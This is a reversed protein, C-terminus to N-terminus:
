LVGRSVRTERDSIGQAMMPIMNGPATPPAGPGTPLRPAWCNPLSGYCSWRNGAGGSFGELALIVTSVSGGHITVTESLPLYGLALVSLQVTGVPLVLTFSGVVNTSVSGARGDEIYSVMGNPIGKGSTSSIVEGAIEGTDSVNGRSSPVLRFVGMYLNKGDVTISRNEPEYGPAAASLQSTGNPLRTGFYGLANTGVSDEAGNLVYSVTANPIGTKTTDNMVRGTIKYTSPGPGAKKQTLQFDLHLIPQAYVVLPQSSAVLGPAVATIAYTGNGLPLAYTGSSSTSTVLNLGSGNAYVTADAITAGSTSTVAGSVNYPPASIVRPQFVWTQGIIGHKTMGGFGVLYNNIPDYALRNTDQPPPSPWAYLSQWASGTWLWTDWRRQDLYHGGFLVLGGVAPDYILFGGDRPPPQQLVNFKLLTWVGTAFSWTDGFEQPLASGYQSYGGFLIVAGTTPDYAMMPEARAPPSVPPSLRAWRGGDLPNGPLVWTDNLYAYTKANSSTGNHGGFLVLENAAADYVLGGVRRGPPAPGVLSTINTWLGGAFEWTDNVSGTMSTGGFLILCQCANDYTMMAGRRASPHNPASINLKTWTGNVFTWTDSYMTTFTHGGFLVVYGNAADYAMAPQTRPSPSPGETIQAWSYPSVPYPKYTSFDFLGQMAPFYANDFNGTSGLGLLWEVTSLLNYHSSQNTYPDSSPHVGISYPSIAVTYVNGGVLHTGDASYGNARIGEDFTIFLVSDSMFPRDLFWYNVLNALWLDSTNHNTNHGDNLLNPIFFAYNPIAAPNTTSENVDEYWSSFTRDHAKCYTQNDWVNPYYLFANVDAAYPFVSDPSCASPMSQVFASWSLGAASALSGINTTNYEGPVLTRSGCQSFTSGSTLAIYNPSSPHCAAFYNDAYSYTAALYREYTLYRLVTSAQSNEMVLVFVHQIPTPFSTGQPSGSLVLTPSAAPSPAPGSSSLGDVAPIAMILAIGIVLM